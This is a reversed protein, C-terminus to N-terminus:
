GDGDATRMLESLTQAIAVEDVVATAEVEVQWTKERRTAPLRRPAESALTVTAVLAGEAYLNLTVPYSDAQVRAWAWGVPRPSEYERSRWTATLTSGAGWSVLDAGQILYLTDTEVDSYLGAATETTALADARGGSLDLLLGASDTFALYVGDHVASRMTTPGLAQWQERRYLTETLLRASGGDVLVLGDPSAYVIGGGYAAVSRASACAQEVPIRTATMASPDSGTIWYPYAETLAVLSNGVAALAVVEYPLTVSYPWAHPQWTESFWVTQGDSGALFGGAMAVLNALTASPATYDTTELTEGTDADSLEDVYWTTGVAVDAVFQYATEGNATVTRYLRALTVNYGAPTAAPLGTVMVDKSPDVGVVASPDSPPGEEGWATVYTYCYARSTTYATALDLDYSLTLTWDGTGTDEALDAGVQVGDVVLPVSAAYASNAPYLVGLESGAEDFARFGVVLFAGSDTGGYAPVSAAPVTWTKGGSGMIVDAGEVLSVKEAQTAGTSPEEWYLFWERTWATAAKNRVASVPATAPKPVGLPWEQETTDYGRVKPSGDGTYYLRQYQDDYVPSKVVSMPTTWSLWAGRYPYVSKRAADPLTAATAPGALPTVNGAQHRCNRSLVAASGPLLKASVRPAMGAFETLRISAM